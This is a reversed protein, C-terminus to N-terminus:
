KAIFAIFLTKGNYDFYLFLNNEDGKYSKVNTIGYLIKQALIDTSEAPSGSSVQTSFSNSKGDAKWTGTVSLSGNGSFSGSINSGDQAGSFALTFTKTQSTYENLNDATVDDFTYNWPKGISGTAIYNMKWTKSLFIDSLDDSKDCSIILPLLLIIFFITGKKM